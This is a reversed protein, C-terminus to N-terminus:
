QLANRIKERVVENVPELYMVFRRNYIAKNKSTMADASVSHLSHGVEFGGVVKAHM